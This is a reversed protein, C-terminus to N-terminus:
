QNRGGIINWRFSEKVNTCIYGKSFHQDISVVSIFVNGTSNARDRTWGRELADLIRKSLYLTNVVTNPLETIARSSPCLVSEDFRCCIFKIENLYPYYASISSLIEKDKAFSCHYFQLQTISHSNNSTTASNDIATPIIKFEGFDICDKSM